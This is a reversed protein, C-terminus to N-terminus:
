ELPLLASSDNQLDNSAIDDKSYESPNVNFYEKFCKRFYKLDSFGVEYTVEAVTMEKQVLLQAARQIRQNRIFENPSLGTLSKLKRYLQMRSMGLERGFDEVKFGSDHMNGNIIDIIKSLFQEDVSNTAIDKPSLFKKNGFRQSLNKKLRILNRVKLTLIKTNFPKTIYDDAGTELGDTRYVLSTRATLLILPIHCTKEDTKIKRCFEMGDMEPMLVDSIILDPIKNIAIELGEVGNSATVVQYEVEFAQKIFAKVDDNDEVILLLPKEITNNESHQPDNEIAKPQTSIAPQLQYHNSHESGAFGIILDKPKFHEKGMPLYVSFCTGKGEESELSIFGQHLSVLNKCLALGIGTGSKKYYFDNNKDIQFYLDFIKEQHIPSMGIGNDKVDLRIYDTNALKKDSYKSGIENKELQIIIKISGEDPTFKFANSLLNFIIKELKDRDYWVEIEEQEAEFTFHINRQRALEKFAIFVGRLFKNINGKGVQLSMHGSEMKRFDMLQTILKLLQDGNKQMIILQNYIRANLGNSYLVRELSGLILTLPTRIEHSINTFFSLKLQNLKEMNERKVRELMLNHRFNVRMLIWNRLLYLLCLIFIIYFFYAYYTKWFPPHIMLSLSANESSWVGDNNTAKVFFRYNGPDLNTYQALNRTADTHIWDKDFGDLKYAYRNKGPSSYHLSAFEFSLSNDSYKLDIHDTENISRTLVTRGKEDAGIPVAKNFIMFNTLAVQPPHTNHQIDEPFFGNFGNIGGFFLQGDQTKVSANNNFMNEQLGDDKDYNRFFTKSDAGSEMDLPNFRSIGKNTSIWLYGEDDELIGQMVENPLGNSEDYTKVKHSKEDLLLLGGETGIWLNKNRDEYIFNIFNYTMYNPNVTKFKFKKLSLKGNAHKLSFIGGGRTGAWIVGSQDQFISTIPFDFILEDPSFLDNYRIFVNGKSNFRNIGGNWTGIWMDGSRDEFLSMVYNDNLKHPQNNEATFQVYNNIQKSEKNVESELFRYIGGGNTGFWVRGQRDECISYIFNSFNYHDQNAIPLPQIKYGSTLSDSKALKHIGGGNTGVWLSGSKGLSFSTINNNILGSRNNLSTQFTHFYKIQTDITNVGKGTGIWIIGSRDEFFSSIINNNLSNINDHEAVYVQIKETTLDFLNLGEETGIWLTSSDNISHFLARIRNHSLGSSSDEKNYYSIAVKTLPSPHDEPIVVKKLGARTGIFLTSLDSGESQLIKVEVLDFIFNHNSANEDKRNLELYSFTNELPKFHYLGKESGVWIREKSDQVMINFRNYNMDNKSIYFRQFKVGNKEPFGENIILKNIGELTSVWINGENDEFIHNIDNHSLSSDDLPDHKYQIFQEKIKDFRQLGDNMTGIWIFGKSDEFVTRIKSGKIGYPNNKEPKYFKLDIGDYKYLGTWTGFWMFGEKDQLICNIHTNFSGIDTELSKFKISNEFLIQGEGHFPIFSILLFILIFLQSPCRM